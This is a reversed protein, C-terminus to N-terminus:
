VFFRVVWGIMLALAPKFIAWGIALALVESASKKNKETNTLDRTMYSIIIAIGIALPISLTPLGFAPVMFWSWLVSLVYGSWINSLVITIAFAMAYGFVKM